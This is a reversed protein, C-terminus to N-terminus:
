FVRGTDGGAAAWEVGGPATGSLTPPLLCAPDSSARRTARGSASTEHVLSFSAFHGCLAGVPSSSATALMIPRAFGPVRSSGIRGGAGRGTKTGGGGPAPNHREPPASGSQRMRSSWGRDAVASRIRRGPRLPRTRRISRRHRPEAGRARVQV